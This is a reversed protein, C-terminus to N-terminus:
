LSATALFTRKRNKLVYHAMVLADAEDPSCGLLQKITPGKYTENPKDKPIMYMVGENDYKKPLPALQRRLEVSKESIAFGDPNLDPDLSMSLSHYMEARRNKYIRKREKQDKDKVEDDARSPINDDVTEGFSVTRVDYGQQRLYDAHQKGGGGRDFMVNEPEVEYERMLRLTEGAIISTDKTKKSLLFIMGLADAIVWVTSDGGEATDIGMSRILDARRTKWYPRSRSKEEARNLWSPPFLLNEAGEYFEGDLGQCQRIPDWTSRREVYDDYDLIGRVIIKNDIPLGRSKLELARQVNPSDEAKIRFTKRVFGVGSPRPLDGERSFKRFQNQCDLPNGILLSVHRWTVAMDYNMSNLSSAEDAMFLTRPEGHPGKDLHHGTMTEPDDPVIAKIYSKPEREGAKNIQYAETNLVEIPLQYVSTHIFNNMEGWLVGRLQSESASTVIIRCPSRSCFFWVLVFGAIFDKGLKNGARVITDVNNQVSRLIEVQKDYLVMNPWCVQQFALPDLLLDEDRGTLVHGNTM